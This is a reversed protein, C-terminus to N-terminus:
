RVGLLWTLGAAFLAAGWVAAVVRGVRPEHFCWLAIVAYFAFGLIMGWLTAEVRALPLSRALLTALAAAAAYGGLLATCVRVAM